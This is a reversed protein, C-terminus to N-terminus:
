QTAVLINLLYKATTINHLKKRQQSISDIKMSANTKLARVM